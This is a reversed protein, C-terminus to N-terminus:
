SARNGSLSHEDQGSAESDWTSLRFDFIGILGKYILEVAVLLLALSALIAYPKRFGATLIKIENGDVVHGQDNSYIVYVPKMEPIAVPKPSDGIRLAKLSLGDMVSSDLDPRLGRLVDKMYHDRMLEFGRDGVEWRGTTLFNEYGRSVEYYDRDFIMQLIPYPTLPLVFVAANLALGAAVLIWNRKRRM